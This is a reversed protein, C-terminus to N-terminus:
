RWRRGVAEVILAVAIGGGLLSLILQTDFLIQAYEISIEFIAAIAEIPTDYRRALSLRVMENTAQVLVGVVVLVM